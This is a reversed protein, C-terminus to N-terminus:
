SSSQRQLNQTETLNEFVIIIYLRISDVLIKAPIVFSLLRACSGRYSSSPFRFAMLSENWIIFDSISTQSLASQWCNSYLRLTLPWLNSPIASNRCQKLVYTLCKRPYYVIDLMEFALIRTAQLLRYVLIYECFFYPIPVCWILFELSPLRTFLFGGCFGPFARM